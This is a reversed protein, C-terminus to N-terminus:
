EHQARQGKKAMLAMAEKLKANEEALPEM